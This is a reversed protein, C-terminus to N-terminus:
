PKKKGSFPAIHLLTGDGFTKTEIVPLAARLAEMTIAPDNALAEWYVVWGGHPALTKEMFAFRKRFDEEESGNQGYEPPLLPLAETKRRTAMFLDCPANSFVIDRSPVSRLADHVESDQGPTWYLHERCVNENLTSYGLIALLGATACATGRRTWKEGPQYLSVSVLYTVVLVGPPVIISLIRGDLPTCADAISISLVLFALYIAIFCASIGILPPTAGLKERRTRGDPRGLWIRILAAALGAMLLFVIRPAWVSNAFDVPVVFSAITEIGENIQAQTIPHWALTRESAASGRARTIWFHWGLIPGVSLVGFLILARIRRWDRGPHALLVLGGTAILTLGVYRTLVGLGICLGAVAVWRLRPQEWWFALASLAGMLCLFFPPESYLYSHVNCLDGSTLIAAAGLIGPILLGGASRKALWGVWGILLGWSVANFIGFSKFIDQGTWECFSVMWPTVPPFWAMPQPAGISNPMSLGEGHAFLIGSTMYVSSDPEVNVGHRNMYLGAATGLVSFVAM